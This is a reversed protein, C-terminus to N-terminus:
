LARAAAVDNPTLGGAHLATAVLAGDCGVDALKRLDDLDRVGGGALVSAEAAVGRIRELMSVDPGASGGVRAVDLVIFTQVGADIARRAIDEPSAEAHETGRTIPVGNRLDLSFAVNLRGAIDHLTQFSSLTELGVVVTATGAQQVRYADDVTEVGGDVLVSAGLDSIGRIIAGQPARLGIADLDAVYVDTLAFVDLYLRALRLPDGDISVGAATPVASYM